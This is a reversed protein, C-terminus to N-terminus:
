SNADAQLKVDLSKMVELSPFGDGILSNELQYERIGARTAAAVLAITVRITTVEIGM